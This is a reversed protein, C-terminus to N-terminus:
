RPHDPRRAATGAAAEKLLRAARLMGRREALDAATFGATNRIAPNAGHQLFLEVIEIAKTEDSPLRMLPTVHEEEWEWTAIDPRASLAERLRDVAGLIALNWLDNGYHSLLERTRTRSGFVALGLPTAWYNRERWDVDAGRDILLQAVKASNNWAAAHLARSRGSEEDEVDPSVGLDLIFRAAEVDDVEAARHLAVFSTRLEPHETFLRRATDFDHRLAAATFQEHPNVAVNSRPAGFRALLEAMETLGHRVALEYITVKRDQGRRAPPRDPNPSAGHMLAWEALELDNRDLAHELVYYAGNGYGGMGLMSWTPDNWDAGRGQKLSGEHITKLAWLMNDGFHVNYLVQIDYPIAGRELLLAALENRTPHPPRNEEGEGVVGTFPSYRSGGAMFYSNPDAGNDLLLKAIEAANDNSAAHDLRTFCLYLIPEAKPHSAPRAETLFREGEGGRSGKPGGKRHAAEPDNALIRRVEEVNGCVVAAYINESALDPHQALLQEATGKAVIHAQGGRVQHDPCANALFRAVLAERSETSQDGRQPPQEPAYRELLRAIEERGNELAIERLTRGNPDTIIEAGMELLSRAVEVDGMEVVAFALPTFWERGAQVPEPGKPVLRGLRQDFAGPNRDFIERFRDILGFRVADFMDIRERLIRDRVELHGAYNAWGAPTGLYRGDVATVDAGHAILAEVAEWNGRFAAAHLATYGSAGDVATAGDDRTNASAGHRLLTEVVRGSSYEAARVILTAFKGGPGLLGPNERLVREVDRDLIVAAPVSLRAGRALLLDAMEQEGSLAAQDLPTLGAADTADVDAGLDILAELSEPQKKIVALHLPHRRLNVRDMPRDLDGRNTRALARIDAVSGMAVASFINHGAGHALLFDVVARRRVVREADNPGLYSLDFCTAWGIVELEHYDGTGIPEAGHEILLRIVDLDLWEAAFHLPYANDGEDRVNPNAGRDLLLRVVPEHHVGFHLATRQGTNGPLTGRESVIEPHQDLLAEVRAVDGKGAAELLQAIPPAANRDLRSVADVLATWGNFGYELALAHQSDRLTARADTERLAKLRRKAEKKLNEVSSRSTLKRSMSGEELFAQLGSLVPM